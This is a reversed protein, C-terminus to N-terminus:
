ALGALAVKLQTLAKKLSANDLAYSLRLYGPTGFASGPVTAVNANNLLYDALEYDSGFKKNTGIFTHFSPFSYFAGQAPLCHVGPIDNLGALFFTHRQHYIENMHQVSDQKGTLAAVAAFQAISNPNSTSQSQINSMARIVEKSGGAYGIRWGTMAYAKSCGNLVLTRDYLEPCINIINNFSENGWYIHEYIDDTLIFVKPHRLLIKALENLEAHTYVMGTPNSPSNIIFLRTKETIAAELQQPTIKLCSEISGSIFVPKAEALLAMDPYSVWYPAPIIVEDGPNLLSQMLNYISQKAGSSVIVQDLAYDLKNEHKFKDIVAQKLRLMGDVATYKTFGGDLALRAAQKIFEPTDFDPEGVTLNIIPKGSAKLRNAAASLSLTPSPKIQSVRHSLIIHM